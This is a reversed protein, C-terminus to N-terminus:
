TVPTLCLYREYCDAQSSSKIHHLTSLFSPTRPSHCFYSIWYDVGTTRILPYIQRWSVNAIDPSIKTTVDPLPRTVPMYPTSALCAALCGVICPVAGSCPMIQSLIDITGHNLFCARCHHCSHTHSRELDEQGWRKIWHNSHYKSLNPRHMGFPGQRVNIADTQLEQSCPKESVATHADHSDKQYECM